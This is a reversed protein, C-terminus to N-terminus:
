PHQDIDSHNLLLILDTETDLRRLVRRPLSPLNPTKRLTKIGLRVRITPSLTCLSILGRLNSPCDSSDLCGSQVGGQVNTGFGYSAQLKTILILTKLIGYHTLQACMVWRTTLEPMLWTMPGPQKAAAATTPQITEPPNTADKNAKGEESKEGQM